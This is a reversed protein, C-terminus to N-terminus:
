QLIVLSSNEFNELLSLITIMCKEISLFTKEASVAGRIYKHMM